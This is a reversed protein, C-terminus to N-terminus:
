PLLAHVRVPLPLLNVIALNANILAAYQFLGAPDSNATDAGAAVVGVPGSLSSSAGAFNSVLSQFGALLHATDAPQSM